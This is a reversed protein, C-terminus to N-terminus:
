QGRLAAAPAIRMAALTRRLTAGLAALLALLLAGVLPWWGMPAQLVFGSLYRQLGWWALPLGAVGAVAALLLFERGVLLGVAMRGAGHLKRLIGQKALADVHRHVTMRSINFHAFLDETRVYGLRLVHDAIAERLELAKM